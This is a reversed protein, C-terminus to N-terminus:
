RRRPPPLAQRQLDPLPDRYVLPRTEDGRAAQTAKAERCARVRSRGERAALGSVVFWAAGVVVIQDRNEYDNEDGTLALAAGLGNLGAWVADLVPVTNGETCAFYDM